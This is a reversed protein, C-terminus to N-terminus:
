WTVAIVCRTRALVRSSSSNSSSSRGITRYWENGDFGREASDWCSHQHPQSTYHRHTHTHTHPLQEGILADLALATGSPATAVQAGVNGLVLYTCGATTLSISQNDTHAHATERRRTAKMRNCNADDFKCPGPLRMVASCRFSMRSDSSSFTRPTAHPRRRRDASRPSPAKPTSTPPIHMPCLLTSEHLAHPLQLGLALM